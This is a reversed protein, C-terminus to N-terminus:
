EKSFIGKVFKPLIFGCYFCFASFMLTVRNIILVIDHYTADFLYPKLGDLGAGIGFLIFALILFKGKMKIEWDKSKLSESAFILGTIVFTFLGTLLFVLALPTYNGDVPNRMQGIQSVDIFIMPIFTLYYSVCIVAFIILILKQQDKFKLDTFAKMWILIGLPVLFNGLLFYVQDTLGIGNSLAVIFSITSSWWMESMIIWVFGVMLLLPEKYKFYKLM